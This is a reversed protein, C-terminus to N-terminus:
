EEGGVPTNLSEITMEKALQRLETEEVKKVLPILKNLLATIHAEGESTVHCFEESYGHHYHKENKLLQKIAGYIMDKVGEENLSEHSDTGDVESNHWTTRGM